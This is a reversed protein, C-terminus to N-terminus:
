VRLKPRVHMGDAKNIITEVVTNRFGADEEMKQCLYGAKKITSDVYKRIDHNSARIRLTTAEDLKSLVTTDVHSRGTVLVRVNPIERLMLLLAARANQLDAFEDLADLVIFFTSLHGTEIALLRSLDKLNPKTQREQHSSYIEEVHNSLSRHRELLQKLLNGVIDKPTTTEKYNFYICGLGVDDVGKFKTHL